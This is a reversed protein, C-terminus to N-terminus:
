GGSSGGQNHCLLQAQNRQEILPDLRAQYSDRVRQEEAQRNDNLESLASQYGQNILQTETALLDFSARVNLGYIIKNLLTLLFRETDSIASANFATQISGDIRTYETLYLTLDAEYRAQASNILADRETQLTSLESNYRTEIADLQEQLQQDLPARLRQFEEEIAAICDDFSEQQAVFADETPLTTFDRPLRDEFYEATSGFRGLNVSPNIVTPVFKSLRPDNQFAALLQSLSNLIQTDGSEILALIQAPTLSNWFAENAATLVNDLANADQAASAPDSAPDFNQTGPIQVDGPTFDISEATINDVDAEDIPDPETFADGPDIEIDPIPEVAERKCSVFIVLSLIAASLLAKKLISLSYNMPDIKSHVM